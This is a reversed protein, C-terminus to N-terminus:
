KGIVREAFVVYRMNDVRYPHCTFLTLMDKGEQILVKDIENPEIVETKVVKYTLKEKFNEIYIENGIEIKEIDRFIKKDPLGRHGAIVSNTNEGGIPYSTETMLTVGKLLNKQNAGLIIPVNIGIKPINLYGIVNNEIGYKKLDIGISEYVFPDKLKEQKELYIRENEEKLNRYLDDILDREKDELVREREGIFEEMDDLIERQYTFNSFRPHLFIGLGGLILLISVVILINCKM